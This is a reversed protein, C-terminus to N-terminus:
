YILLLVNRNMTMSKIKRETEIWSDGGNTRIM